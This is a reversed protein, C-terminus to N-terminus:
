EVVVRRVDTSDFDDIQASLIARLLEIGDCTRPGPRSFYSSADVAWLQNGKVAAIGEFVGEDLLKKLYAHNELANFGCACAVVIEPNAKRVQEWTLRGSSQAAKGFVDLGGAAAVQEPVWHGGYWPPDPWELMLVRPPEGPFEGRGNRIRRMRSCIRDAATERDALEGLKRIDAEIGDMDLSELSVVLAASVTEVRSFSLSQHVTEEAVACVACVGQTVILDPELAILKEADISYLPQEDLNAAQVADDIEKPNLGQQLISQTIRPLSAVSPPYDCEHSIAVLHQELGLACIIETASPLLSVIRL